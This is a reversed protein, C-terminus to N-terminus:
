SEEGQQSVVLYVGIIIIICGCVKYANIEEDFLLMGWILGWIVTVAKNAYASVLPIKKLIQQWFIAYLGLLLIVAGYFLIFKLSLFEQGSAYKSCVSSLSYLLILAQLMVYSKWNKKIQEM